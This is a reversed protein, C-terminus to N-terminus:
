RSVPVGQNGGSCKIVLPRRNGLSGGVWYSLVPIKRKSKLNNDNKYKSVHTYM